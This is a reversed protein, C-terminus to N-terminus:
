PPRKIRHLRKERWQDVAIWLLGFAYVGLFTVAVFAAISLCILFADRYGIQKGFFCALGALIIYVLLLAWLVQKLDAFLSRSLKNM